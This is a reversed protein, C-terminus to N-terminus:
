TKGGPIRNQRARQDARHLNGSAHHLERERPVNARQEDSREREGGDVSEAFAGDLNVDVFVAGAARVNVEPHRGCGNWRRQVEDGVIFKLFRDVASVVRQQISRRTSPKRWAKPSSAEPLASIRATRQSESSTDLM